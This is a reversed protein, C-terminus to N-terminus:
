PVVNFELVSFRALGSGVALTSGAPLWFPFIARDIGLYVRSSSSTSSNLGSTVSGSVKTISYEIGDVFYTYIVVGSPTSTNTTSSSSLGGTVMVNEVKWVKGVPVTEVTSILKVQNFTLSQSYVYFPFLIFLFSFFSRLIM